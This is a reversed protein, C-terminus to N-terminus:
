DKGPVTVAACPCQLACEKTDTLSPIEVHRNENKELKKTKRTKEEWQSTTQIIM